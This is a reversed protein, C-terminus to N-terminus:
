KDGDEPLVKRALKLLRSNVKLGAAEAVGRNIELVPRQREVAVRIMGGREAFREDEGITLVPKGSLAKLAEPDGQALYVAHAGATGGGVSDARRIVLPNSGIKEGKLFTDIRDGFPDQGVIVLVLPEDANAFTNSPWETFRLFNVLFTMKLEQDTVTAASLRGFSLAWLLFLVFLGAMAPSPGSRAANKQFVHAM